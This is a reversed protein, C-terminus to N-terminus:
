IRVVRRAGIATISREPWRPSPAASRQPWRGAGTSGPPSCPSRGGCGAARSPARNARMAANSRRRSVSDCCNPKNLTSTGGGTQWVSAAMPARAAIGAGRAMAPRRSIASPWDVPNVDSIARFTPRTRRCCIWPPWDDNIEADTCRNWRARANAEAVGAHQVRGAHDRILHGTLHVLLRGLREVDLRQLVDPDAHIQWSRDIAITGSRPRARVTCAFIGSALYPMRATAWLRAAALKRADLGVSSM